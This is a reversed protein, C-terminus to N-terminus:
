DILLMKYFWFTIWSFNLFSTIWSFNLFSTIWSFNLFSNVIVHIFQINMHLASKHCDSFLEVRELNEYLLRKYQPISELTPNSKLAFMKSFSNSSISSSQERKTLDCIQWLAQSGFRKKKPNGIMYQIKNESKIIAGLVILKKYNPRMRDESPSFIDSAIKAIKKRDETSAGSSAKAYFTNVIKETTFISIHANSRLSPPIISENQMTLITTVRFHRGQFFLQKTETLDKWDKISAACDDILLCINPNLQFNNLLSKQMETLSFSQLKKMNAIICGRMIKVLKKQYKSKLEDLNTEVEDDEYGSKIECCGKRYIMDLKEIKGKSEPDSVFEYIPRLNDPDRVLNYMTMVNNQRQFIRKLLDKTLDDYICSTPAIGNYDGNMDNTPNCVIILPVTDRITNLIHMILSSKGTGSSGYLITLRNLFYLEKDDVRPIPVGGSYIINSM